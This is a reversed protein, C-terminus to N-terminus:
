DEGPVRLRGIWFGDVSSLKGRWWVGENTPLPRQGHAHIRADRLHIYRAPPTREPDEDIFDDADKAAELLWSAWTGEEPTEDDSYFSKAIARFYESVGVLTGAVVSGGVSLTISFFDGKRANAEEVFTKLLWDTGEPTEDVQETAAGSPVDTADSPTAPNEDMM